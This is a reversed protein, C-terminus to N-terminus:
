SRHVSTRWYTAFKCVTLSALLRYRVSECIDVFWRCSTLKSGRLFRIEMDLLLYLDRVLGNEGRYSYGDVPILTSTYLKLLIDYRGPM